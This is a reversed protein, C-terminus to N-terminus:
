GEFRALAELWAAVRKGNVGLDSRGYRARSWIALTAGGEAPLFRVSIFDPFGFVRSRQVYTVFGAEASGALRRVRPTALAVADFLAALEVPSRAYRPAAPSTDPRLLVANAAPPPAVQMPDRHWDEVVVPASRVQWAVALTAGLGLVLLALLVLKV